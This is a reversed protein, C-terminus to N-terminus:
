AQPLLADGTVASCTLTMRASIPFRVCGKDASSNSRSGSSSLFYRRPKPHDFNSNAKFNAREGSPCARRDISGDGRLKGYFPSQIQFRRTAFGRAPPWANMAASLGTEPLISSVAAKDRQNGARSKGRKGLTPKTALDAVMFGTRTVRGFIERRMAILDTAPTESPAISNGPSTPLANAASAEADRRNASATQFKPFAESANDAHVFSWAM